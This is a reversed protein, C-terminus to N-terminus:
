RARFNLVSRALFNFETDVEHVQIMFTQEQQCAPQLFM